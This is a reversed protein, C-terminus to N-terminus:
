TYQRLPNPAFTSDAPKKFGGREYWKNFSLRSQRKGLWSSPQPIAIQSAM